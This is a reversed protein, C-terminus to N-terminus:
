ILRSHESKYNLFMEFKTGFLTKPILHKENETGYWEDCMKNIVIIFDNLTYGEELRADILCQSAKSSVRYNAGIKINLWSIIESYLEENSDIKKVLLVEKGNLV